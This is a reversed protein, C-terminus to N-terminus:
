AEGSLASDRPSEPLCVAGALGQDMAKRVALASLKAARARAENRQARWVADRNRGELTREKREREHQVQNIASDLRREFERKRAERRRIVRARRRMTNWRAELEELEKRIVASPDEQAESILGLTRYSLLKRYLTARGIQLLKAAVHVKGRAAHLAGVIARREVEFMPVVETPTALKKRRYRIAMDISKCGCCVYAFGKKTLGFHAASLEFRELCITCRRM